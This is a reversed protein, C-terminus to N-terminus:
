KHAIKGANFKYGVNGNVISYIRKNLKVITKPPPIIDLHGVDNIQEISYQLLFILHPPFFDIDLFFVFAPKRFLVSQTHLITFPKAVQWALVAQQVIHNISLIFGYIAM